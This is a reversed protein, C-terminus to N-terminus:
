RSKYFYNTEIPITSFQRYIEDMDKQKSTLALVLYTELDKSFDIINGLDKVYQENRFNRGATDIFVLDYHAFRDAARKFDDLNYAVEIPM